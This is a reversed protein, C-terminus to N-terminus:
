FIILLSIGILPLNRNDFLGFYTSIETEAGVIKPFVIKILEGM